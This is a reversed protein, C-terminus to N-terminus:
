LYRDFALAESAIVSSWGPVFPLASLKVVRRIPRRAKVVIAAKTPRCPARELDSVREPPWRSGLM